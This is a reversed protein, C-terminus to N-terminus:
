DTPLYILTGFAVLLGQELDKSRDWSTLLISGVSCTTSSIKLGPKVAAATGVTLLDIILIKTLWIGASTITRKISCMAM